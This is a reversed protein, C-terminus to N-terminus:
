TCYLYIPVDKSLAELAEDLNNPELRISGQVRQAGPDYYGHSRVDAIVIQTPAGKMLRAAIESVPVRPVLRDLRYKGYLWARYAVYALIGIGILWEATRGFANLGGVLAQFIDRFVFGVAGYSLVYVLVGAVDLRLFQGARMNM